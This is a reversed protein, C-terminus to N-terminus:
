PASVCKYEQNLGALQSKDRDSLQGARGTRNWIACLAPNIVPAPNSVSQAIKKVDEWRGLRAYGEIFVLYESLDRPTYQSSFAEDGLRAVAQWDGTQRALDAKEFYFCWNTSPEQKFLFTPPIAPSNPATIIQDMSSLTLANAALPPLIHEQLEIIRGNRIKYVPLFILDQDFKPNLIRLCSPPNFYFVLVQDTSGRFDAGLYFNQLIPQGEELSPLGEELRASITNIAVPLQTTHNEPAYIWNVLYTLGEDDTFPFTTDDSLMLTNQKLGPIRWVLQWAFSKQLDTENRFLASNYFQLGIALSTLLASMTISQWINPLLELLGVLLLCAGLLFSMSFRDSEFYAQIKLGTVYFPIGAVLIAVLGTGIFQGVYTRPHDNSINGSSSQAQLNNQYLLLGIFSTIVLLPYILAFRTIGFKQINVQLTNEWAAVMVVGFSHWISNVLWLISEFPATQFQGILSPQYTPFKLVFIRWFLYASLILLFPASYLAMRRIRTKFDPIVSELALWLFIPRLLELGVLYESSFLQIVALVLAGILGFWIYRPTRVARVMLGLSLYFIAQFFWFFHYTMALSQQSFGPYVVYFLTVMFIPRPHKGWVQRLFWWLALSAIWRLLMAYIQWALPNIGLVPTLAAEFYARIPRTIDAMTKLGQLGQFFRVWAFSWDDWYFGLHKAYLGYSAIVVILLVVPATWSRFFGDHNYIFKWPLKKFAKDARLRFQEM